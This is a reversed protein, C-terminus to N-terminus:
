DALTLIEHGTDTVLISHEFQASLKGDRTYVTWKDKKDLVTQWTGTNIMPEITFTMGPIMECDTERNPYHCVQPEAHFVQGVGHGTYQRVVGLGKRSAYNYIAHGIAILRAGPRVGEIGLRLCERACETVARGDDSPEGIYLTRSTDGFFGDLEVTVDINIIDGDRLVDGVTPIGHCVVHNISTCVSKPFAGPTIIPNLPDTRGRPYNLPAPYAGAALTLELVWDDIQQTNTGPGVRGCVEKLINAALKCARRMKPLTEPNMIQFDREPPKMM